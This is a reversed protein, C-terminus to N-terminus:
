GGAPAPRVTRYGGSHAERGDGGRAREELRRPARHPYIGKERKSVMGRTVDTILKDVQYKAQSFVMGLMFKSEPANEFHYGSSFVLQKLKGRDLLDLVWGGDVANRALRDPHWCLIGDAKGSNIWLVMEKFGPRTGQTKASHAETITHVITLGQAQALKHALAVQDALSQIQRDERETSKRAYLVFRGAPTAHPSTTRSLTDPNQTTTPTPQM